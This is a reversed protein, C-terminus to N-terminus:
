LALLLENPHFIEIDKMPFDKTNNTVLALSHQKCSAAIFCDLLYTKRKKRNFKQRYHAAIRATVVDIECINFESVLEDLAKAEKPSARTLFEAIVIPSFALEKEQAILRLFEAEPDKGALALILVNTDFLFVTPYLNFKKKM